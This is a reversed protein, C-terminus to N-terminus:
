INEETSTSTETKETKEIKEKLTTGDLVFYKSIGVSPIEIMPEWEKRDAYNVLIVGNEISMNQPAIRDGLLIANTGITRKSTKDNIAVVIYYFTSSGGSNQTLIFAADVIGDGNLDGGVPENWKMTKIKDSSGPFIEEDSLGDILTISQNEIIYTANLPNFNKGVSIVFDEEPLQKAIIFGIGVGIILVFITFIVFNKYNM